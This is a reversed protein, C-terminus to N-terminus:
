RAEVGKHALFRVLLAADAQAAKSKWTAKDTGIVRVKPRCQNLLPAIIQKADEISIKVKKGTAPDVKKAPESAIYDAALLALQQHEDLGDQLMTFRERMRYFFKSSFQRDTGDAKSFDDIREELELCSKDANLAIEWPQAWTLHDGGPKLVRIAIADRGAGDKAVDDLVHHAQRLVEGLATKVHAYIVAGSLTTKIGTGNFAKTYANRCALACALADELPLLALVDDGGAYILFGNNAQVVQAVEATFKNLSTAIKEQNDLSSMQTGLSDGDMMLVAYFPTPAKDTLALSKLSSEFGEVAKLDPYFKTNGRTHEFFVNGDLAILKRKEASWGEKNEVAKHLCEIRVNWEDNGALKKGAEFLKAVADEDKDLVAELWHVAAMYATSPMGTELPWGQLPLAKEGLKLTTKFSSFHRVFRRKVFALACLMEGVKKDKGEKEGSAFDTAGAPQIACVREWFVRREENGDKQMNEIGSLEQWGEMIVCKVGPEPPPLHNRWNKRRDLLNSANVDDTIAWSIEWFAANQRQWVTRTAPSAIAQLDQQWVHEALQMWAARVAQEVLKGDFDAPVEAKFRNPISGQRPAIGKGNGRIWALYGAAPIPFTIKGGMQETAAMAVGSLWSLLFSGAWFDRTRRAQSVFGQVPGLTFHFYHSNNM